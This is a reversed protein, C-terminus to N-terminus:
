AFEFRGRFVLLGILVTGLAILTSGGDPASQAETTSSFSFVGNAGAGQTSFYWLGPTSEYGNGYISGSGSVTVFAGNQFDVNSTYLDFTFGGVSWLGNIGANFMWPATMTVPAPPAIFAALASGPTVSTVTVANWATVGTATATPGNLTAGGSFNVTGTIPVALASTAWLALAALMIFVKEHHLKERVLANNLFRGIWM